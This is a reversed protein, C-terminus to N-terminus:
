AAANWFLIVHEATAAHSTGQAALLHPVSMGLMSAGTAASAALMRRRSLKYDSCSRTKSNM